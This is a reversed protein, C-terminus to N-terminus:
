LSAGSVATINLSDQNAHNQNLTVCYKVYSSTKSYKELVSAQTTKKLFLEVIYKQSGLVQCIGDENVLWDNVEFERIDDM